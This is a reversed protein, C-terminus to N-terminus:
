FTYRVGLQMQWRSTLDRVTFRKPLTVKGGSVTGFSFAPKGSIVGRYIFHNNRQNVVEKVVGWEHNVFNLVNLMDLTMEFLGPAVSLPVQQAIHMDIRNVWPERSANRDIVTGRANDLAPDGSIYEDLQVWIQDATRPDGSAPVINIDARNKPVYVLDNSSQGDGNADASYVTSYPRGSNGNYVFSVVTSFKKLFEFTYSLSGIVRHRTEYNSTASEPANPNGKQPNTNWNSVAQSSLGSNEDVAKGYTYAASMFYGRDASGFIGKDVSKQLGFTLNYEYGKDSNSLLIVNTFNASNFLGAGSSSYIPRVGGSDGSASFNRSLVSPRLNINQYRIANINRSAIMDVTGIFGFPMEHDVGLNFRWIQPHKFNKDTVNIESTQSGGYLKKDDQSPDPNFYGSTFNSANQINRSALYIGTANYQNSIWVYPTRGSFIGIGGRVQTKTDSFVDWNIGVRPSILINGSAVKDNRYRSSDQFYTSDFKGNYAPKDPLVPIDFRIGATINMNPRIKWMDQFYFGYQQVDFVAAPRPNTSDLSYSLEYQNPHGLILSDISGFTYNGYLNRIFINKFSFFENHTGFTFTHDGFYYTFNDTVEIIDQDLANAQSFNETGAVLLSTRGAVMVRVTPKDPSLTKRKDRITQYALIVENHMNSGFTSNVQLVSSNTTNAIGYGGNGFRFGDSSGVGTSRFLNDDNADVYNHRLTLRHNASLNYDLRAFFKTSPRELTKLGYSGANYGYTSLVSDFRQAELDTVGTLATFDSANGKGTIGLTTPSKRISYEGNLFFFLRDKIVPGGARFGYTNESFDAVKVQDVGKGVFGENRGLFYVSGEYKNTGSRTIANIGGGTFGGQRVDYPAVSVQFEQIADLSIPTTGASGGPTGTGSLGFLDNNVSGDIQINNYRNSRGAAQNGSFQPTLRTFDDFSRGITPLKTIEENSVTRAAGTRSANMIPNREATIEVAELEVNEEVMKFDARYDEGLTLVIGSIPNAKYGIYDAKLTYPGGVRINPINFRGDARSVAGFITGSPEHKATVNAGYVPQGNNDTVKGNFGATTSTQSIVSTMAAISMALFVLTWRYVRSLQTPKPM